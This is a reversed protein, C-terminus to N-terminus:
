EKLKEMQELVEPPIKDRMEPPVMDNFLQLIAAPDPEEGKEFKQELIQDMMNLFNQQMREADDKGMQPLAEKPKIAESPSRIQGTIQGTIQKQIQPYSGRTLERQGGKKGVLDLQVIRDRDGDTEGFHTLYNKIRIARLIREIGQRVPVQHFQMSVPTDTFVDGYLVIKIACKEGVEKMIDEPKLDRAQVSLLGGTLKVNGEMAEEVAHNEPERAARAQGNCLFLLCAALSLTIFFKLAEPMHSSSHTLIM